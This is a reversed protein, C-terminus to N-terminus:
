YDIDTNLPKRKSSQIVQSAASENGSEKELFSIDLELFKTPTEDCIIALASKCTVHHAKILLM